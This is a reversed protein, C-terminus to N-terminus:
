VLARRPERTRRSQQSAGKVGRPTPACLHQVRELSPDQKVQGLQVRQVFPDDEDDIREVLKLIPM